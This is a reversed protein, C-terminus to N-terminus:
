NSHVDSVVAEAGPLGVVYFSCHLVVTVGGIKAIKSVVSSM